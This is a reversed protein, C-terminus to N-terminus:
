QLFIHDMEQTEKTKNPLGFLNKARKQFTRKHFEVHDTDECLCSAYTVFKMALPGSSKWRAKDQVIEKQINPNCKLIVEAIFFPYLSKDMSGKPQM